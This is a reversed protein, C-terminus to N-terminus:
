QKDSHGLSKGPQVHDRIRQKQQAASRFLYKLYLRLHRVLIKLEPFGGEIKRDWVLIPSRDPLSLWVRFRGGTEESNLPLVTIAKIIPAPFTLMLETSVWTARHQRHYIRLVCFVSFASPEREGAVSLVFMSTLCSEAVLIFVSVRDCFEITISPCPLPTPPVFTTPDLLNQTSSSEERNQISSPEVHIPQDSPICEVCTGPDAM